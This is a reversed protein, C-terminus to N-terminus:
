AWARQPRSRPMQRSGPRCSALASGRSRAATLGHPRGAIGQTLEKTLNDVQEIHRQQERVQLVNGLKAPREAVDLQFQAAILDRLEDAPMAQYRAMINQGELALRPPVPRGRAQHSRIMVDVDAVRRIDQRTIDRM